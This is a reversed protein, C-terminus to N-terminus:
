IASGGVVFFGIFFSIISIAVTLYRFTAFTWCGGVLATLVGGIICCTLLVSGTLDDNILLDAKQDRLMVWTYKSAKLFSKGHLGVQMMTGCCYIYIM